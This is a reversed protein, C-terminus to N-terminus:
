VQFYNELGNDEEKTFSQIGSHGFVYRGSHQYSVM